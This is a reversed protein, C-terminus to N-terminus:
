VEGRNGCRWKKVKRNQRRGYLRASKVHEEFYVKQFCFHGCCQYSFLGIKIGDNNETERDIHKEKEVKEHKDRKKEKYM